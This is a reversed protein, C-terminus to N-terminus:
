GFSSPSKGFLQLSQSLGKHWLAKNIGQILSIQGSYLWAFKMNWMLKGWYYLSLYDYIGSFYIVTHEIITLYKWEFYMYWFPAYLLSFQATSLLSADCDKLFQKCSPSSTCYKQDSCIIFIYAVHLCFMCAVNYPLRWPFLDRIDQTTTM